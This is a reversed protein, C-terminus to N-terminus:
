VLMEHGEYYQETKGGQIQWGHIYPQCTQTQAVNQM